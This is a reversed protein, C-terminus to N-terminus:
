LYNFTMKANFTLFGLRTKKFDFKPFNRSKSLKKLKDSKISM